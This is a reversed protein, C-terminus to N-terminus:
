FNDFIKLLLANIQCFIKILCTISLLILFDLFKIINDSIKLKITQIPFNEIYSM